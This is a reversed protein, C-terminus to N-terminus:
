DKLKRLAGRKKPTSENKMKDKLPDHTIPCLTDFSINLDNSGMSVFDECSVTEELGVEPYM